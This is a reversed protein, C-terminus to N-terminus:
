FVFDRNYPGLFATNKIIESIVYKWDQIINLQGSVEIFLQPGKQM